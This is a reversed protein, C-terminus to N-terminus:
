YDDSIDPSSSSQDQKQSKNVKAKDRLEKVYINFDQSGYNVALSNKFSERQEATMMKVQAPITKEVSVIAYDGNSLAISDYATSKKDSVPQRFALQLIELNIGKEQRSASNQQHWALHHEKLLEDANNGGRLKEVLAAAVKEMAVQAQQRKLVAVIKDKVKDISLIQAPQSTKIRLVVLRGNGLDIPSSNSGQQLVEDSFAASVIKPSAELGEQNGRRSFLGSSKVEVGLAQAIPALSDPHTFALETLQDSLATYEHEAKQKLIAENVQTKVASLPQPKPEELALLKYVVFEDPQLQVSSVQGVKMTALLKVVNANDKAPSIWESKVDSPLKQEQGMQKALLEARNKASQIDAEKAGKAIPVVAKAVQWRAPSAFSMQNNQYYDQVEADSVKQKAKLAEADLEVYDVSVQAESQYDKKHADYYSQIEADKITAESEFDKVPLTIYKFDRKQEAMAYAQDIENPLAFASQIIGESLQSIALSRIMDQYFSNESYALNYIVHQFREPSFQGDVQFAPMQEIVGQLTLPSVVFGAKSVGQYMVTRLILDNLAKQRLQEQLETTLRLSTGYQNLLQNRQRNYAATLDTSGIKEGNVTAVSPNTRNSVLYYQIGFLAFALSILGILIKSFWGVLHNRFHQLMIVSRVYM